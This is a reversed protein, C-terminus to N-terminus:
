GASSARKAALVATNARDTTATLETRFRDLDENLSSIRKLDGRLRGVKWFVEYGCFGLVIAGFLVVAVCSLVVIWAV